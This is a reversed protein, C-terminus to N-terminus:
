SDVSTGSGRETGTITAIINYKNGDPLTVTEPRLEMVPRGKFRRKEDVKTVVGSLSSGVPIVTAGQYIVDETVRGTFGDGVKNVATSVGTELKIKIVTGTPLLGPQSSAQTLTPQTNNRQAFGAPALALLCSLTMALPKRLRM